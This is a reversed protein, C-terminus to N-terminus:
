NSKQAPAVTLKARYEKGEIVIPMDTLIIPEFKSIDEVVVKHTVGNRGKIKGSRLVTHISYGTKVKNIFIEGRFTTNEAKVSFKDESHLGHANGKSFPTMRMEVERDGSPEVTALACKEAECTEVVISRELKFQQALALSPIFLLFLFRM